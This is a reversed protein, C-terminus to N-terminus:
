PILAGTTLSEVQIATIRIDSANVVTASGAQCSLEAQGPVDFRHVANLALAARFANGANAPDELRFVLTDSDGGAALTCDLRTATGNTTNEVWGKAFIVFSGVGLALKGVSTVTDNIAVPGARTGSFGNSPGRPGQAGQAGAPIQGAKFSKALLSGNRIEAATLTNKKVKTRTITRNKLKKGSVSKNKLVSGSLKVASYGTGGLAVFLAILAVVM